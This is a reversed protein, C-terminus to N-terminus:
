IQRKKTQFCTEFFLLYIFIWLFLCCVSYYFIESESIEGSPIWHYKFCKLNFSNWFPHNNKMGEKVYLKSNSIFIKIDHCFFLFRFITASDHVFVSIYCCSPTSRWFVIFFLSHIFLKPFFIMPLITLFLLLVIM